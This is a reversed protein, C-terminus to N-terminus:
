RKPPPLPYKKDRAYAVVADDIMEVFSSSRTHDALGEAWAKWEPTVRLMVAAKRSGAYTPQPMAEVSDPNADVLLPRGIFALLEPAPRFQETRRLRLHAFRAHIESEEKRGGEITALVALPTGYGAELQRLRGDLNTTTGIKIPGGDTPQVFYIM